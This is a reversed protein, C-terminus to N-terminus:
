NNLYAYINLSSAIVLWICYPMLLLSSYKLTRINDFLLYYLIATLSVIILIGALVQQFYFFIPNWSVNLVWQIFFIVLIKKWDHAKPKALALYISFCIMVFSWAIGFFWGPPTWPAKDLSQYWQDKAGQSTFLSGLYLGLFNITLFFSLRKIM